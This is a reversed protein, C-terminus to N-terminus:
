NPSTGPLQSVIEPKSPIQTPLGCQCARRLDVLEHQLLLGTARKLNMLSLNYTVNSQLYEFEAELLRDQANLINELMFSAALDERPLKEWRTELYTLQDERAAVAEAKAGLELQSTEVERVAVEVELGVTQLTVQYQNQLQRLEIARRQNRALAARNGLPMEFQLGVSYGPQGTDFQNGWALGVNGNRALGAVYTEAVLNLVPLLEHRSMNLRVSAAHIQKLSQAVEPRYCVAEGLSQQVDVPVLQYSPLDIPALEVCDFSGFEPDNVLARLRAEANKVAAEARQLDSRRSTLAARAAKYQAESADLARRKDLQTVIEEARRFSALKQYLTGRELYLAWYARTVELLHGQLQRLFEDQAIRADISALCILSTNYVQGSGRLIPQTFSLTIRSTGQPNPVFFQSNTDQWGFDQRGEVQAGTVLRRRAGGSFTYHNDHYRTVGPGATLTSGIPDSLDNWRSEMFATWDFAADAETIATERILPLDSFVRVQASHQLTRLLTQELTLPLTRANPRLADAIVQDWWGPQVAPVDAALPEEAPSPTAPTPAPLPEATEIGDIPHPVLLRLGGEGQTAALPAPAVDPFYPLAGLRPIDASRSAPMPQPPADAAFAAPVVAGLTLACSVRQLRARLSTVGHSMM